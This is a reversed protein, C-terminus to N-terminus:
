LFKIENIKVSNMRVIKFYELFLNNFNIFLVLNKYNIVFLSIIKKFLSIKNKIM